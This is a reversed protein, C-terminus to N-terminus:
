GGNPNPIEYRKARADPQAFDGTKKEINIQVIYGPPPSVGVSSFEIIYLEPVEWYRAFFRSTRAITLVDEIKCKEVPFYRHFVEYIEETSVTLGNGTAVTKPDSAM